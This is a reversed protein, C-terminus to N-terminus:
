NLAWVVSAGSQLGSLIGGHVFLFSYIGMANLETPPETWDTKLEADGTLEGCRM